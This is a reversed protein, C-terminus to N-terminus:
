QVLIITGVFRYEYAGMDAQNHIGDIRPNDDLDVADDMWTLNTGTNICPSGRKLRYDNEGADVFEPDGTLNGPGSSNASPLLCHEFYNVMGGGGGSGITGIIITNWYYNTQTGPPSSSWSGSVNGIITCNEITANVGSSRQHYMGSGSGTNGWILCNRFHGNNRTSAGGGGTSGANGFMICNVALGNDAVIGAAGLGGASNSIARSNWIQAGGHVFAGGGRDATTNGILDCRDILSNAGTARVGGGGAESANECHNGTVLCYRLTGSEVLVGGGGDHSYITGSTRIHFGNTITFGEVVAGSHNLRFVRNTSNPYDGRIITGDRDLTGNNFSRFTRNGTTIQSTVTYTGNSVWITSPQPAVAMVETINSAATAWSTFSGSPTQGARAVYYDQARVDHMAGGCLLGLLLSTRKLIEGSIRNRKM